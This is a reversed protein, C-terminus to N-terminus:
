CKDGRPNLVCDEFIYSYMTLDMTCCMYIDCVTNIYIYYEYNRCIAIYSLLSIYIRLVDHENSRWLCVSEGGRPRAQRWQRLPLRRVLNGLCGFMQDSHGLM